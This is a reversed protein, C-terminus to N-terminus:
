LVGGALVEHIKTKVGTLEATVAADLVIVNCNVVLVESVMLLRLIASVATVNTPGTFFVKAVESALRIYM